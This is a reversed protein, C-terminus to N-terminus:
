SFIAVQEKVEDSIVLAGYPMGELAQNMRDYVMHFRGM